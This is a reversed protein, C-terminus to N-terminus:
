FLRRQVTGFNVDIRPFHDPEMRTTRRGKRAPDPMLNSSGSRTSMLSLISGRKPGAKRSPLTLTRLVGSGDQNVPPLATMVHYRPRSSHSHVLQAVTHRHLEGYIVTSNLSEVDWDAILSSLWGDSM